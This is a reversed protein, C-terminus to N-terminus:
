VSSDMESLALSISERLWVRSSQIVAHCKTASSHHCHGLCKRTCVDKPGKPGRKSGKPDNKPDKYNNQCKKPDDVKDGWHIYCFAEYPMADATVGGSEDTATDTDNARIILRMGNNSFSVSTFLGEQYNILYSQINQLKPKSKAVLESDMDEFILGEVQNDHVFARSPDLLGMKMRKVIAEESTTTASTAESASEEDMRKSKVGGERRGDSDDQLKKNSMSSAELWCARLFHTASLVQFLLGTACDAILDSTPSALWTVTICDSKNKINEEMVV